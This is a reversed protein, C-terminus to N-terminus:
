GSQARYWAATAALGAAVTHPPRWGLEDRLRSSDIQLSGALRAVQASRGTLTGAAKLLPVPCRLLRAPVGLATAIGRVLDPTSLDTGDSVLYTRGRAAPAELCTLIADVLNGLYVMSRRNDIAGLPLPVGRAVLQMLRLFNAKVGPGYVLPPRLIVVDLGTRAAIEHLAQEAEWKSIGYADEPRPADDETYPRDFTQEGNVKISSLFVFRRVGAEAAATALRRTADVNIRRYEALPDAARDHLVHTRAALHIVADVDRLAPEWAVAGSLDGVAVTDRLEDDILPTAAPARQTKLSRVAQRVAYGQQRLHTCLARGVYGDAGTALVAGRHSSESM